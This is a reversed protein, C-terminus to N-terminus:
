KKRRVTAMSVPKLNLASSRKKRKRLAGVSMALPRM